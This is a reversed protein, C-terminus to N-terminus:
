SEEPYLLVAICVLIEAVSNQLLGIARSKNLKRAM